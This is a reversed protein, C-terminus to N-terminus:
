YLEPFNIYSAPNLYTITSNLDVEIIPSPNQEPFSALRSLNKEIQKQDTIDHSYVRILETDQIFYIKQELIHDDLIVECQFDKNASLRQKITNFLAHQFQKTILDPFHKKAAPNIYSIIGSKINAEIVPNPNQEPFSALRAIDTESYNM